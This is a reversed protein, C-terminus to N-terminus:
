IVDAMTAETRKFFGYALPLLVLTALAPVALVAPDPASGRIVATRFGEVIGTMPNLLFWSRYSAPVASLSYAWFHMGYRHGDHAEYYSYPPDPPRDVGEAPFLANAAALDDPRLEPTGHRYLSELHYAYEWGDGYRVPPLTAYYAFMGVALAAFGAVAIGRWRGAM